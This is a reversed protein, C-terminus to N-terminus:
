NRKITEEQRPWYDSVKDRKNKKIIDIYLTQAPFGSESARSEHNVRHDDGFFAMKNRIEKKTPPSHKSQYPKTCELTVRYLRRM